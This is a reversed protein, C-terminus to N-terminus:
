ISFHGFIVIVHDAGLRSIHDGSSMNELGAQGTRGFCARSITWIDTRRWTRCQACRSVYINLNDALASINMGFPLVAGLPAWTFDRPGVAGLCRSPPSSLTSPHRVRTTSRYEVRLESRARVLQASSAHLSKHALWYSITLARGGVWSGGEPQVTPYSYHTCTRLKLPGPEQDQLVTRSDAVSAPGIYGSMRRINGGSARM